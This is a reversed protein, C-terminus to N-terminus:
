SASVGFEPPVSQGSIRIREGYAHPLPRHVVHGTVEDTGTWPDALFEYVSVMRYDERHRSVLFAIDVIRRSGDPFRGLQVVMDIASNVQDRLTADPLQTEFQRLRRRRMWAYLWRPVLALAFFAPLALLVSGTLLWTALAGLVMLWLAIDTWLFVFKPM